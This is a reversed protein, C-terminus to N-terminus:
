QLNKNGDPLNAPPQVVEAAPPSAPSANRIWPSRSSCHDDMECDCVGHTHAFRGNGCGGGACGGAGCGGSGCDRGACGALSGVLLMAATLMLKRM